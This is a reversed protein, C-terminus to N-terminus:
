KWGFLKKVAEEKKINKIEYGTKDLAEHFANESIDYETFVVLENKIHSAKVKYVVINKRIADEVHMECMGCRMGEVRLIYKNM